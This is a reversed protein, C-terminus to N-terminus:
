AGRSHFWRGTQTQSTSVRPKFGKEKIFSITLAPEPEAQAMGESHQELGLGSPSKGNHAPSGTCMSIGFISIVLLEEEREWLKTSEQREGRGGTVKQLNNKRQHELTQIRPQLGDEAGHAM